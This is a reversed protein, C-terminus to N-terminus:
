FVGIDKTPVWGENGNELAISTWEANSDLIEVRTGEHLLFQSKANATPANLVQVEQSLIIAQTKKTVSSLAMFGIIFSLICVAISFSGFWFLLRRIGISISFRFCAFLLLGIALSLITIWAWGTTSFLNLIGAEINKAFYNEKQEINDKKRKNALTLNHKVDEDAPNLKHALEYNYIAKGLQNDKYYANGLNYYLAPSVEGSAVIKEYNEISKKYEGKEYAVSAVSALLDNDAAFMGPSLLLFVLLSLFAKSRMFATSRINLKQKM